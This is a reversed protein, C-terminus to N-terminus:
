PNWGPTTVVSWPVTSAGTIRRQVSPKVAPRGPRFRSHSGIFEAWIAVSGSGRFDPVLDAPLAMLDHAIEGIGIAVALAGAFAPDGDARAPHGVAEARVEVGVARRIGFRDPPQRRDQVPM